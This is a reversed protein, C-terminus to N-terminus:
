RRYRYVLAEVVERGLLAAQLAVLLAAAFATDRRKGLVIVGQAAAVALPLALAYLYRVELPSVVAAAALVAGAGWYAALDRDLGAGGPDPRGVVALAIAPAGWQLLAARGQRWVAAFVDPRGDRGSGELLRPLQEIALGWFHLYYVAALGLGLGLALLRAPERVLARGRALALAAVLVLIVIATSLHALGAVALLVAGVPWGGWGRGAWWAFFAVTVAQGFVNSFNGFSFLQFTVPLLQFLVVALGARMPGSTVLLGFLVASAGVGALAAGVRVLAVPDLGLRLLPALLVYFSVGYPFRFPTAHPTVSTLFLEGRSVAELNHAHFVADSVVLLPHTAALGQVLVAATVAAFAWARAEPHSRAVVWAFGAAVAFGGTIAGALVLTYGSRVVGCPWVAAAELVATLIALRAAAAPAMGAGRGLVVAALAPALFAVALPWPPLRTKPEYSVSVRNLLTGVVRGDDTAFGESRLEVDLAGDDEPVPEFNGAFRGPAIAGLLVGGASVLVPGQQGAVRVQLTLPVPPLFRFAVVAVPKTWRRALVGEDLERPHLGRAFAAESGRSVDASPPPSFRDVLFAAAFAFLLALVFAGRAALKRFLGRL